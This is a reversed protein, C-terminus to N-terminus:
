DKGVGPTVPRGREANVGRFDARGTPAPRLIAPLICEDGFGFDAVADFGIEAGKDGDVAGGLGADAGGDGIAEGEAAREAADCEDAGHGGGEAGGAVAEAEGGVADEAGAEEFAPFDFDAVEEAAVAIRSSTPVRQRRRHRIADAEFGFDMRLMPILLHAPDPPSARGV